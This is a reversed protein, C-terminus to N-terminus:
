VADVAVDVSRPPTEVPSLVELDPQEAGIELERFKRASVMVRSEISGVAANYSEVAQGLRQGVKAVHLRMDSIRKYLENGLTAIQRANEALKEQRWGFSVAKLLTILTTPTALIVRQEVGQEILEPAERLAASFFTENPLFLIVFEPTPHFQEWYSKRGLAAMHDRILRAHHSLKERHAAEEDTEIAELYASLPAKADVIINRGGPLRIILDPRLRGSDATQQQYFDCHELMGALEVVRQLQIEGWRGRVRPTGLAQVLNGTAQHLRTQTELLGKIQQTLGEYAGAREKEMLQIKQDVKELSERVPKVLEDIALQRKDLDGRASEQYKELTAKALEVFTQNNSRLADSSLTKFANGLSEQAQTLLAIKEEGAQREKQLITELERIRVNADALAQGSARLADSQERLRQDMESKVAAIQAIKEEIDARLHHTAEKTAALEASGEARLREERVAGRVRQLMWGIAIGVLAGAVCLILPNLDDM